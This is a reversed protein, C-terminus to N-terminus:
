KTSKDPTMGGVKVTQTRFNLSWLSYINLGILAKRRAEKGCTEHSHLM